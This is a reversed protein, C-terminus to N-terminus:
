RVGGDLPASPAPPGATGFLPTALAPVGRLDVDVDLVPGSPTDHLSRDLRDLLVGLESGTRAPAAVSAALTELLPALMTVHGSFHQKGIALTHDLTPLLDNKLMAFTDDFRRQAAPDAMFENSYFSYLLEIAGNLTYPAGKMASGFQDFLFPVPVRQTEAISQATVLVAQLLPTFAKVGVNIESLLEALQPTLVDGTFQGFAHLLSSITADTTRDANDGTLDVVVDDTLAAGGEGPRLVIESIGFLNAPAYAVGLTDTLGPLQSRNLALQIRQRGVGALEVSDVTGVRVGALRVDVGAGVGEGVHETLLTVSLRDPDSGTPAM